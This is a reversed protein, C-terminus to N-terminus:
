AFSEFSVRSVMTLKRIMCEIRYPFFIPMDTLRRCSVVLFTMVHRYAHGCAIITLLFNLTIRCTSGGFSGGFNHVEAGLRGRGRM